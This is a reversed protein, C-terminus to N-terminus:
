LLMLMLAPANNLLHIFLPITANKTKIFAISYIIGTIFMSLNYLLEQLTLGHMHFIMFLLSAVIIRIVVPIRKGKEIPIIRFIFEETIPGLIGFALFLIPIPLIAAAETVSNDNISIYNPYLMTLPLFSLNSLFINAVFTGILWLFNKITHVRWQNVGEKIMGHFAILGITGLGIYNITQIWLSLPTHRFYSLRPLLLAVVTYIGLYVFWSRRAKRSQEPERACESPAFSNAGDESQRRAFIFVTNIKESVKNKM